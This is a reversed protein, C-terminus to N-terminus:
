NVAILNGLFCNLIIQNFIGLCKGFICDKLYLLNKCRHLLHRNVHCLHNLRTIVGLLLQDFKDPLLDCIIRFNIPSCKSKFRIHTFLASLVTRGIKVFISVAHAKFIDPIFLIVIECHVPILNRFLETKREPTFWIKVLPGTVGDHGRERNRYVFFLISLFPKKCYECSINREAPKLLVHVGYLYALCSITEDYRGIPSNDGM